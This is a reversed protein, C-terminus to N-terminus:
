TPEPVHGFLEIQRRGGLIQFPQGTPERLPFTRGGEAGCLPCRFAVQGLPSFLFPSLFACRFLEAQWERFREAAEKAM